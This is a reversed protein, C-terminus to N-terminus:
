GIRLSRTKSYGNVHDADGAVKVRYVADRFIRIRRTYKSRTTGADQLVPRAVTTWGGSSTRRQILARQGDHAPYVSGSFTVLSGRRPTSDSVRLGVLSRVLVLRPGSTVPPSAQAIARVQTNVSPKFAVTFKGANNTTATQAIPKYQDGYPKTTDQEFRVVTGANTPGAVTGTLTTVSGFVVPNPAADLTVTSTKPKNSNGQALVHPSTSLAALVILTPPAIRM